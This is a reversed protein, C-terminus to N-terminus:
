YVIYRALNSFTNGIDPEDLYTDANVKILYEVIDKSMYTLKCSYQSRDMYLVDGRKSVWLFSRGYDTTRASHPRLLSRNVASGVVKCNIQVRDYKSGSHNRLTVGEIGGNYVWQSRRVEWEHTATDFGVVSVDTIYDVEKTFKRVKGFSIKHRKRGERKTDENVSAKLIKNYNSMGRREIYELMENEKSMKDKVEDMGANLWLDVNSDSGGISASLIPVLKKIEERETLDSDLVKEDAGWFKRYIEKKRQTMKEKGIIEEVKKTGYKSEYEEFKSSNLYSYCLYCVLFVGLIGIPYKLRKTTM